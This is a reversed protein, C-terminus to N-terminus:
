AKGINEPPLSHMLFLHTLHHLDLSFSEFAKSIINTNTINTNIKTSLSTRKKKKQSLSQRSERSGVVFIYCLDGSGKNLM